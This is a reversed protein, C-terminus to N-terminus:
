WSSVIREVPQAFYQGPDATPARFPLLAALDQPTRVLKAEDRELVPLMYEHSPLGIVIVKSGLALGEFLTTSSVGLQYEHEAILEYVDPLKHVFTLNAPAAAKQHSYAELLESPHLGYTFECEPLLRAAEMTFRVLPAAITAQSAVFISNPRKVAKQDPHFHSAGIVRPKMQGPLDTTSGWFEGWSLLEDPQYHVHPRGPYSYGMHYPTITGHQIESVPICLDQAAATVHPNAYGVLVFARELRHLRFLQRYWWRLWAFKAVQRRLPLELSIEL